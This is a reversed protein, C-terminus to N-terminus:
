FAMKKGEDMKTNHQGVKEVVLNKSRVYTITKVSFLLYIYQKQQSISMIGERHTQRRISEAISAGVDDFKLISYLRSHNGSIHTVSM